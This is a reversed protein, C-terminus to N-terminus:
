LLNESILEIEEHKQSLKSELYKVKEILELNENELARLQSQNHINTNKESKNSLEEARYKLELKEIQEKM